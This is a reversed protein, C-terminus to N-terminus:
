VVQSAVTGIPREVFEMVGSIINQRASESAVKSGALYNLWLLRSVREDGVSGMETRGQSQGDDYLSTLKGTADRCLLLEKKKPAKGRNFIQKFERMAQGFGEDNFTPNGQSRHSIARMFGDRLHHFDTDRVPVIRFATRCGSEKLIADWTQEGEQPDMLAKRLEEKESPVLTTALRNIKKVLYNQLTAIDSTAVYFGVVYVQISLFSVTRLGLGVLTYETGAKDQIMAAIPRSATSDSSGVNLDITRPFHPVTTNGTPVIEHGESDHVVVKRKTGAELTFMENPVNSDLKAQGGNRMTLVIKYSTYVIGVVGAMVGALLFTQKHRLYDDRRQGLREINLTDPARAENRPPKRSMFLRRVGPRAVPTAHLIPRLLTRSYM